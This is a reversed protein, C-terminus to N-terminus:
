ALKFSMYFISLIHKGISQNCDKNQKMDVLSSSHVVGVCGFILM